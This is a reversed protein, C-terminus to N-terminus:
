SSRSGSRIAPPRVSGTMVYRVGLARGVERLDAYRGGYGKSSARSVVILERLGALSVVIDEVIGDSFYDDAADRSMNELPLVAISPVHNADAVM